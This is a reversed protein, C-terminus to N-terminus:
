LISKYRILFETSFKYSAQELNLLIFLDFLLLNSSNANALECM